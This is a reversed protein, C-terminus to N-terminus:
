YAWWMLAIISISLSIAAIVFDSLPLDPVIISSGEPSEITHLRERLERDFTVDDM